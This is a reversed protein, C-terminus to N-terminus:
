TTRNIKCYLSATTVAIVTALAAKIAVYVKCGQGDVAMECRELLDAAPSGFLANKERARM